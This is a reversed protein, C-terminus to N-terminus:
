SAAAIADLEAHTPQPLLEAEAIRKNVDAIWAEALDRGTLGSSTALKRFANKAHKEHDFVKVHLGGVTDLAWEIAGAETLRFPLADSASPLAEFEADADTYEGEVADWDPGHQEVWEHAQEVTLRAAEPPMETMGRLADGDLEVVYGGVEYMMM